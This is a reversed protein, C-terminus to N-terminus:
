PRGRGVRGGRSLVHTYTMTTAVDRHGLLEQITRIDYGAELLLLLSPAHTPHRAQSNPRTSRCPTGACTPRRKSTGYGPRPPAAAKPLPPRWAPDALGAFGRSPM